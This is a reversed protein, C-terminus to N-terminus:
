RPLSFCKPGLVLSEDFESKAHEVAVGEDLLTTSPAGYGSSNSLDLM